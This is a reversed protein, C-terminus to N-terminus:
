EANLVPSRRRASAIPANTPPGVAPMIAVRIPGGDSNADRLVLLGFPRWAERAWTVPALDVGGQGWGCANAIDAGVFNILLAIALILSGTLIPKTLRKM